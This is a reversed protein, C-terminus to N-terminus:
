EINDLVRVAREEERPYLHSYTNWTMSINSHGLRRAIEQINIGENALLSAHSHRFDHIRIRKVGALEAYHKNKKEISTDRIPREGGCIYAAETFCELSSESRKRHEELITQLRRPIQITRISSKNKPPTFRDGGSLKQAVSKTISLYGGKIDSWQLANIEGKRMGMYFAINFFVYYNWEFVSGEAEAQEACEHAAAIFRKFEEPTYFLMEKEPELPAKFNGAITVPNKPIYEMKVAYNIMARFEGYINKRTTFSLGQASIEQKWNQVMPVSLSDLKTSEFKPLVNKKLIRTTKDLSTERVESRKAAIYEEFLQMVTMKPALERSNVQATLQMELAKAADSGYAVRTIQRPKGLADTYNVRVRYKQLGDKRINKGKEDTMKYIPM